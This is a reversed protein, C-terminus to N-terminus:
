NYNRPHQNSSNPPNPQFNSNQNKNFIRNGNIRSNYNPNQNFNQNNNVLSKQHINPNQNTKIKTRCENETHGQRKCFNCFKQNIFRNENPLLHIVSKWSTFFKENLFM